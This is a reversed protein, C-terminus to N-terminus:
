PWHDKSVIRPSYTAATKNLLGSLITLVKKVLNIPELIIKMYFFTSIIEIKTHKIQFNSYFM